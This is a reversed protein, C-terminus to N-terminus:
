TKYVVSTLLRSILSGSNDSEGVGSVITIGGCCYKKSSYLPTVEVVTHVSKITIDGHTPWRFTTQSLQSHDRGNEDFILSTTPWASLGDRQLSSTSPLIINFCIKPFQVPPHSNSDYPSTAPGHKLSCDSTRFSPFKKVASSSDTERSYSHQM